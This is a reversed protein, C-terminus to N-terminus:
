GGTRSPTQLDAGTDLLLLAPDRNTNTAGVDAERRLLARVFGKFAGQTALHLSSGVCLLAAVLLISLPFM